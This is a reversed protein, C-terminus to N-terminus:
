NCKHCISKQKSLFSPATDSDKSSASEASPSLTADSLEDSVPLDRSSLSWTVTGWKGKSIAAGQTSIEMRSTSLGPRKMTIWETLTTVYAQIERADISIEREYVTTAMEWFPRQWKFRDVGNKLEWNCENPRLVWFTATVPLQTESTMHTLTRTLTRNLTLAFFGLELRSIKPSNKEELKEEIFTKLEKKTKIKTLM